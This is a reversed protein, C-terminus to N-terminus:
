VAAAGAGAGVGAEDAEALLRERLDILRAATSNVRALIAPADGPDLAGGFAQAFKDSHLRLLWTRLAEKLAAADRVGGLGVDEASLPSQREPLPRARM